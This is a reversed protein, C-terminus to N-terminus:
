HKVHHIFVTPLTDMNALKIAELISEVNYRLDEHQVGDNVLDRALVEADFGYAELTTTITDNLNALQEKRYASLETNM